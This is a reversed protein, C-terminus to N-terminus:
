HCVFNHYITNIYIVNGNLWKPDYQVTRLKAENGMSRYIAYNQTSFDLASAFYYNGDSTIIATSNTHPNYPCKAIGEEWALAHSLSNIQLIFM